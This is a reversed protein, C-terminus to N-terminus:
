NSGEGLRITPFQPLSRPTDPSQVVIAEGLLGVDGDMRKESVLMWADSKSHWSQKLTTSRLDQEEMRYWSVHIFVDVDADGHPKMGMMEIDAVRVGTGWARHHLAYEDRAAPDVRPLVLENRGFRSDLNFDQATQHARQAGTPPMACASVLVCGLGWGVLQM